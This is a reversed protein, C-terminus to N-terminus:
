YDDILNCFAAECKSGIKRTFGKILTQRPMWLTKTGISNKKTNKFNQKEKM